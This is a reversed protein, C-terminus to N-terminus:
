LVKIKNKLQTKISWLLVGSFVSKFYKALIDYICDKIKDVALDAFESLQESLKYLLQMIEKIQDKSEYLARNFEIIKKNFSLLSLIITLAIIIEAVFVICIFFTFIM